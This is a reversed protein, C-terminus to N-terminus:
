NNITHFNGELFNLLEPTILADSNQKKL